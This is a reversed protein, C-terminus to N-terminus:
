RAKEKAIRLMKTDLGMGHHESFVAMGSIYYSGPVELRSYPELVPDMPERPEEQAPGDEMPYAHMMSIVERGLEAVTCNKYSFAGEESAYRRAGIELLTLGPYQLALTSWVYEALGSSSIRFLEAIRYCDDSTAPRSIVEFSM